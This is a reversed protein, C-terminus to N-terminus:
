WAEPFAMNNYLEELKNKHGAEMAALNLFIEKSEADESFGAYTKYMEMAEQEKKVALAIGDVPKMDVSLKPADITEAVKYDPGPVFSFTRNENKVLKELALQHGKEAAALEEFIAKLGPDAVKAAINGYFEYAEVENDIALQMIEEFKSM